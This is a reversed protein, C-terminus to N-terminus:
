YNLLREKKFNKLKKAKKEKKSFKAKKLQNNRPMDTFLLQTVASSLKILETKNFFSSRDEFGVYWHIRFNECEAIYRSHFLKPHFVIFKGKYITFIKCGNKTFSKKIVVTNM